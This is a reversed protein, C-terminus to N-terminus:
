EQPAETADTVTADSPLSRVMIPTLEVEFAHPTPPEPQAPNADAMARDRELVERMRDAHAERSIPVSSFGGLAPPLWGRSQLDALPRALIESVKRELQDRLKRNQKSM